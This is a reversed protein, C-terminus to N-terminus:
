QVNDGKEKTTDKYLIAYFVMGFGLLIIVPAVSLSLFGYTDKDISMIVFGLLILGISIGLLIYNKKQFIMNNDASVVRRISGKNLVTPNDKGAQLKPGEQKNSIISKEKKVM